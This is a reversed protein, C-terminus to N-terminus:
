PRPGRGWRRESGSPWTRRYATPPVRQGLRMRTGATPAKAQHSDQPPKPPARRRTRPRPSDPSRGSFRPASCSNSQGTCAALWTGRAERSRVKAMEEPIAEYVGRLEAVDSLAAWEQGGAHAFPLSPVLFGSRALEVLGAHHVIANRQASPGRLASRACRVRRHDNSSWARLASRVPWPIHATHRSLALTSTSGHVRSRERTLPPRAWPMPGRARWM